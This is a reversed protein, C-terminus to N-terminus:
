KNLIMKKTDVEVDDVILSYLYMGPKFQRGEIILQNDRKGTIDFTEQMTGSMDFIMISASSHVKPLTYSITTKDKFPNPKNQYLVAAPKMASGAMDFDVHQAINHILEKMESIEEKLSVIEEKQEQLTAEHSQFGNVLLPIIEDINLTLVGMSSDVLHPLLEKVEQAIFGFHLKARGAELDSKYNFTYTKLQSLASLDTLPVINTKLSRDSTVHFEQADLQHHGVSSDWFAIKDNLRGGIVGNNPHASFRMFYSGNTVAIANYGAVELAYSTSSTLTGITVDGDSHVKLQASAAITMTACLATLIVKRM